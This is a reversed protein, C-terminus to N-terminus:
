AGCKADLVAAFDLLTKRAAKAVEEEPQAQAAAVDMMTLSLDEQANVMDVMQELTLGLLAGGGVVANVTAPVTCIGADCDEQGMSALCGTECLNDVAMYVKPILPALVCLDNATSVGALASAVLASIIICNM